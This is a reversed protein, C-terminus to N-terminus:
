GGDASSDPATPPTLEFVPHRASTSRAGIGAKVMSAVIGNVARRTTGLTYTKSM